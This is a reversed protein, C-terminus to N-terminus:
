SYDEIGRMSNLGDFIPIYVWLFYFRQLGVARRYFSIPRM